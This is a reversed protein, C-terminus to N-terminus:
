PSKNVSSTYRTFSSRPTCDQELKQIDQLDEDAPEKPYFKLAPDPVYPANNLPFWSITGWRGLYGYYPESALPRLSKWSDWSQGRGTLDTIWSRYSGAQPYTAHTGLASYVVPHGDETWQLDSPCYWHGGNHASLYVGSVRFERAKPRIETLFAMGEWDGQHDGLGYTHADNYPVHYWFEILARENGTALPPLKKLLSAPSERWFIPVHSLEAPATTSTKPPEHLLYADRGLRALSDPRIEGRPTVLKSFSFWGPKSWLSSESLFTMPDTPLYAERPHMWVRPAIQTAVAGLTSAGAAFALPQAALSLVLLTAMQRM